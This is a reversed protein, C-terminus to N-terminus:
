MLVTQSYKENNNDNEIKLRGNKLTLENPVTSNLLM